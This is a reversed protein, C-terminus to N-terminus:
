IAQARSASAHPVQPTVQPVKCVAKQLKHDSMQPGQDHIIQGSSLETM